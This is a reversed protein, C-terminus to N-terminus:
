PMEQGQENVKDCHLSISFGQLIARSIMDQARAIVLARRFDESAFHKRAM